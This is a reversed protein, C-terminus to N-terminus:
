IKEWEQDSINKIDSVRRPLKYSDCWKRITNDSVGYKTAIQTFPTTRILDKLEERSPRDVHRQILHGCDICYDAKNSSILKGCRKCYHKQGHKVMDLEILLEKAIADDYFHEYNDPISILGAHIGRHCNACVLICKKMELLQKDLAKTIAETGIGFEKEEPNVHHFDLAEQFASFGCICCKSHFVKILNAKRRKVFNIVNQSNQNNTMTFYRRLSEVM